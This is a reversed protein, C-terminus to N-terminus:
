AKCPVYPCPAGDKRASCRFSRFGPLFSPGRSIPSLIRITHCLHLPLLSIRLGWPGGRQNGAFFDSGTDVRENEDTHVGRTAQAMRVYGHALTGPPIPDFSRIGALSVDLQSVRPQHGKLSILSEQFFFNGAYGGVVLGALVLTITALHAPFFQFAQRLGPFFRRDNLGAIKERLKVYFTPAPHIEPVDGLMEWTHRFAAHLDSCEPCGKLHSRIGAEEDSSLERDQYASLKKRVNRCNM